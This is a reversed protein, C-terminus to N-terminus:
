AIGSEDNMAIVWKDYFELTSELPEQYLWGHHFTAFVQQLQIRDLGFLYAVLADIETIAAKKEDPDSLANVPVGVQHAWAAYRDDVAALRGALNTIRAQTERAGVCVRQGQSQSLVQDEGSVHPINLSNIVFHNMNIEVTQRVLWDFPISSMVGLAFAEISPGGRPVLFYPAANTLASQPPILSCIMSRSDTARAILRFAIRPNQIPLTQPDNIYDTSFDSFPSDRRNVTARRKDQLIEVVSPPVSGYYKGTDPQYLDFSEGKYLKFYDTKVEDMVFLPKDNTADFERFPRLRWTTPDDLDIRPHDKYVRYLNAATQTTLIPFSSETGFNRFESAPVSVRPQAVGAKFAELSDFPGALNIEGSDTAHRRWTTLAISYRPEMDFAWRASNLLLVVDTFEGEDFSAIRWAGSGLQALVSRPLVVGYRGSQRVLQLFRWAFTQYLDPDGTGLGAYPGALLTSREHSRSLVEAEYESALDPRQATLDKVYKDQAGQDM